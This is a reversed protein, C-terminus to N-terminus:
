LRWPCTKTAADTGDALTVISASADCRRLLDGSGDCEAIEQGRVNTNEPVMGQSGTTPAAVPIYNTVTGNVTKSKRQHLVDYAYKVRTSGTAATLL